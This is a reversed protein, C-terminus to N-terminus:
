SSMEAPAEAPHFFWLGKKQSDLVRFNAREPLADGDRYIGAPMCGEEWVTTLYVFGDASMALDSTYLELYTQNPDDFLRGGRLLTNGIGGTTVPLRAPDAM